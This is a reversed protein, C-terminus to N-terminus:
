KPSITIAIPVQGADPYVDGVSTATIRYLGRGTLDRQFVEASPRVDVVHVNQAFFLPMGNRFASQTVLAELQTLIFQVNNSAAGPVVFSAVVVNRPFILVDRVARFSFHIPDNNFLNQDAIAIMVVKSQSLASTLEVDSVYDRLLKDVESKPKAIKKLGRPVYTANVFAAVRDYYQELASLRQNVPANMPIVIYEPSMLDGVGVIVQENRTHRELEDAQAQLQTVRSNITNLHFFATKVNNNAVLAGVTVVLAILMGTGIAVITSTYRPRIGFLSLRKRGVQHGVRDGVYAIAGALCVIFLVLFIGRLLDGM